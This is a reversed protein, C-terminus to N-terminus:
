KKREVEFRVTQEQNKPLKFGADLPHGKNPNAYKLPVPNGPWPTTPLRDLQCGDNTPKVTCTWGKLCILGQALKCGIEHESSTAILGDGEMTLQMAHFDLTVTAAQGLFDFGISGDVYNDDATPNQSLVYAPRLLQHSDGIALPAEPLRTALRDIRGVDVETPETRGFLRLHSAYNRRFRPYFCTSEAGTDLQLELSDNGFGVGTVIKWDAIAINATRINPRAGPFGIEIMGDSSWRLTELAFLVPLGILGHVHEGMERDSEILFPVNKLRFKGITVESAVAVGTVQKDRSYGSVKIRYPAVTLGLRHAESDSLFSDSCGTDIAYNAPQGNIKLPIYLLNDVTAYPFKSYGREAIALDGHRGRAVFLARDWFLSRLGLAIYQAHGDANRGSIDYISELLDAATSGQGAWPWWFFSRAVPLLEREAQPWDHFSYALAGRYFAPPSKMALVAARFEFIRREHLLTDLRSPRLSITMFVLPVVTAAGIWVRGRLTM